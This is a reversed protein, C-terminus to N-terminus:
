SKKKIAVINLQTLGICKVYWGFNELRERVQEGIDTIDINSNIEIKVEHYKQNWKKDVSKIKIIKYAAKHPNPIEKWLKSWNGDYIHSGDDKVYCILNYDDIIHILLDEIELEVGIM